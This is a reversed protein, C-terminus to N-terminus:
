PSGAPPTGAPGGVTEMLTTLLTAGTSIWTAVAAGGAVALSSAFTVLYRVNHLQVLQPWGLKVRWLNALDGAFVGLLLSFLLVQLAWLFFGSWLSQPVTMINFIAPPVVITLFLCIGKEIGNDGRIYPYYYGFFFGFVAWQLLLWSAEGLYDLLTVDGLTGPGTALDWLALLSWPMGIVLGWRTGHWGNRWPSLGPTLGLAIQKASKGTVKVPFDQEHRQLRCEWIRVPDPETEGDGSASPDRTPQVDTAGNSVEKTAGARVARLADEARSIEVADRLLERLSRYRSEPQEVADSIATEVATLEELREKPLLLKAALLAGLIITVPIYLWNQDPWYFTFVVFVIGTARVLERRRDAAAISVVPGESLSQLVLLLYVMGLWGSLWLLAYGFPFVSWPGVRAAQQLPIVLGVSPLLVLLILLGFVARRSLRQRLQDSGQYRPRDRSRRRLATQVVKWALLAFTLTFTSALLLFAAVAFVNVRESDSYLLAHFLSAVLVLVVTATAAVSGSRRSGLMARGLVLSALFIGLVTLVCAVALEVPRTSVPLQGGLELVALVGAIAAALLLACLMRHLRRDSGPDGQGRLQRMVAVPWLVLAAVMGLGYGGTLDPIEGPELLWSTLPELYHGARWDLEIAVNVVALGLPWITLLATTRRWDAAELVGVWRGGKRPVYVRALFYLLVVMPVQGMVLLLFDGVVPISVTGLTMLRSQVTSLNRREVDFTVEEGGPRRAFNAM